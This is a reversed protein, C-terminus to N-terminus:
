NLETSNLRETTDSEKHDWPSFCVLSGEMVLEWLKSLSMDMSYTIADLWRM